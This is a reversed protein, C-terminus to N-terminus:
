RRGTAANRILLEPDIIVRAVRGRWQAPPRWWTALRWWPPQAWWSLGAWVVPELWRRQERRAWKLWEAHRSQDLRLQAALGPPFGPEDEEQRMAEVLAGVTPFEGPRRGVVAVPPEVGELDAVLEATFSLLEEDWGLVWWAPPSGFNDGGDFAPFRYRPAV